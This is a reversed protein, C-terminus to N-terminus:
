AAPRVSHVLPAITDSRRLSSDRQQAGCLVPGASEWQSERGRSGPVASEYARRHPGEQRETPARGAYGRM